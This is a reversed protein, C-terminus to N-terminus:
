LVKKAAKKRAKKFRAKRTSKKAVPAKGKKAKGKKRRRKKRPGDGRVEKASGTAGGVTEKQDGNLIPNQTEQSAYAFTVPAGVNFATAASPPTAIVIDSGMAAVPAVSPPSIVTGTGGLIRNVEAQHRAQDLEKRRLMELYAPQYKTPVFVGKPLSLPEAM